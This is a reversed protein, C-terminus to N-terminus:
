RRTDLDSVILRLLSLVFRVEREDVDRALDGHALANRAEIMGRLNRASTADILGEGELVAVTQRSTLAETLGESSGASAQRAAAELVAWALVFAAGSHGGDLLSEVERVGKQLQQEDPPSISVTDTDVDGAYVVHFKWKGHDKFRDTVDPSRRGAAGEGVKVEIVVGEDDRVAIADPRFDELFAPVLSPSPHTFFAYGDSEYRERLLGLIARERAESSPKM